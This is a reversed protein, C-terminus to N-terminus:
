ASTEVCHAEDIVCSVVRRQYTASRLLKRGNGCLFAEPHGFVLRCRGALVDASCIIDQENEVVEDDSNDETEEDSVDKENITSDSFPHEAINRKSRDELRLVGCPFKIGTLFNLQDHILSNLPCVVIAISTNGQQQSPPSLLDPLIQFM